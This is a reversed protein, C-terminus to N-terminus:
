NEDNQQFIAVWGELTADAAVVIQKTGDRVDFMKLAPATWLAVTLMAMVGKGETEWHFEVVKRLIQFLHGAVM